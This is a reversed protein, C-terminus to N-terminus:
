RHGTRSRRPWRALEEGDFAATVFDLLAGSDDTVVRPAVSTCGEPATHRM